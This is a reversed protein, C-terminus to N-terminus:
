GPQGGEVTVTEHGADTSKLASSAATAVSRKWARVPESRVNTELRSHIGCETKAQGRWRGGRADEGSAVRDTCPMCGISRFGDAELPHRPLGHEAFYGEIDDRGWGALPNIKIRGDAAEIRSLRARSASQFRKRGTIWADFGELALQLPAVKRLYCCLDPDRSWLMGDADVPEIEDGRPGIERVDTLGLRAVLDDRYGLTEGFLKATNLFLVPVTRDIRAVMHLLVASESGFSSVLAIRGALEHGIVVRLLASADLHGHRAALIRAEMDGDGLDAGHSSIAAAAGSPRTLM